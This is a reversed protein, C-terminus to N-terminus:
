ENWTADQGIEGLMSRYNRAHQNDGFEFLRKQEPPTNMWNLANGVNKYRQDDDDIKQTLQKTQKENPAKEGFSEPDNFLREEVADWPKFQEQDNYLQNFSNFQMPDVQRFGQALRKHAATAGIGYRHTGATVPQKHRTAMRGMFHGFRDLDLQRGIFPDIAMLEGDKNYAVNDENEWVDSVDLARGLESDTGLTFGLQNREEDFKDQQKNREDVEKLEDVTYRGHFKSGNPHLPQNLNEIMSRDLKEQRVPFFRPSLTENAFPIEPVIPYGLSALANLMALESKDQARGYMQPIKEVNKNGIRAHRNAGSSFTFDTPEGDETDHIPWAANESHYSDLYSYPSAAKLFQWATNIPSM